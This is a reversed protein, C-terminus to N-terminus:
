SGHTPLPKEQPLAHAGPVRAETTVCTPGATTTAPSELVPEITTVCSHLQGTVNHFIEPGPILGIDGANAPLNEVVPDGSFDWIM